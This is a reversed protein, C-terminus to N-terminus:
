PLLIMAELASRARQMSSAVIALSSFFSEEPM